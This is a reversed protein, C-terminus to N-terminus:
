FFSEEIVVLDGPELPVDDARGSLVKGADVYFVREVGDLSTRVIRVKHTAALATFGGAQAVLRILSTKATHVYNGPRGIQGLVTVIPEDVELKETSASREPMREVYILDGPELKEDDAEGGMIQNVNVIRSVMKGREDTRVIKVNELSAQTSFGGIQSILRVLTLNTTLIYNGPRAVQGLVAVSKSPSEIFTIEVQPDVLYDKALVDVFYAKLEELTLGEVFIAGLLPYTINGSTDVTFTGSFDPERYVSITLKDGAHIQNVNIGVHGTLPTMTPASAAAGGEGGPAAAAPASPPVPGSLSRETVGDEARVTGAPLASVTFALIM